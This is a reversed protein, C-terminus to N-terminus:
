DSDNILVTCIVVKRHNLSILGELLDVGCEKPAVQHYRPDHSCSQKKVMDEWDEGGLYQRSLDSGGTTWNVVVIIGPDVRTKRICSGIGMVEYFVV